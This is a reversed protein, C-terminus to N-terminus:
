ILVIIQFSQQKYAEVTWPFCSTLNLSLKDTLRNKETVMMDVVSEALSVGVASAIM